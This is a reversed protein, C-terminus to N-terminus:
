KIYFLLALVSHKYSLFSSWLRRAQVLPHPGRKQGYLRIYHAKVAIRLSTYEALMCRSRARLRPRAPGAVVGEWLDKKCSLRDIGNREQLDWDNLCLDQYKLDTCLWFDFLWRGIFMIKFLQTCGKLDALSYRFAHAIKVVIQWFIAHPHNRNHVTNLFWQDTGLLFLSWAM